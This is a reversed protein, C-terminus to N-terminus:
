RRVELVAGVDIRDAWSYGSAVSVTKANVRVVEHWGTRTRVFKAGELDAATFRVREAERKRAEAARARDEERRRATAADVEAVAAKVVARGHHYFSKSARSMAAGGHVDQPPGQAM